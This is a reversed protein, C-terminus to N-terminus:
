TKALVQGDDQENADLEHHRRPQLRRLGSSNADLHHSGVM